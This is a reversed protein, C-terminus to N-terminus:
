LMARQRAGAGLPHQAQIEGGAHQFDCALVGVRETHCLTAREHETIKEIVWNWFAEIVGDHHTEHIIHPIRPRDDVAHERNHAPAGAEAKWFRSPGQGPLSLPTVSVTAVEEKIALFLNM